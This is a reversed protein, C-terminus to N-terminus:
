MWVDKGHSLEVGLTKSSGQCTAEIEGSDRYEAQASVGEGHFCGSSNM